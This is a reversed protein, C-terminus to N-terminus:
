SYGVPLLQIILADPEFLPLPMAHLAGVVDDNVPIHLLERM